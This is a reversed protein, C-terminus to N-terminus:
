YFAQYYNRYDNYYKRYFNEMEKQQAWMNSRTERDHESGAIIAGTAIGMFLLSAFINPNNRQSITQTKQKSPPTYNIDINNPLTITLYNDFFVPNLNTYSIEKGSEPYYYLQWRFSVNKIKNSNV